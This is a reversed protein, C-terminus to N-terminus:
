RVGDKFDTLMQALGSKKASEAGVHAVLGVLDAYLRRPYMMRVLVFAGAHGARYLTSYHVALMDAATQLLVYGRKAQEREQEDIRRRMAEHARRAADARAASLAKGSLQAREPHIRPRGRKKKEETM